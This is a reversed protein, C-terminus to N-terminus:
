ASRALKRGIAAGALLLLAFLIPGSVLAAVGMSVRLGYALWPTLLVPVAVALAAGLLRRNGMFLWAAFVVHMALAAWYFSSLPANGMVFPGPVLLALLGSFILFQFKLLTTGESGDVPPTAAPEAPPPEAESV